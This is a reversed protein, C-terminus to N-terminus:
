FGIALGFNIDTGIHIVPHFSKISQSHANGIFVIFIVLFLPCYKRM